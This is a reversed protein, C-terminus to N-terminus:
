ARSPLLAARLPLPVGAAGEQLAPLSPLRAHRHGPQNQRVQVADDALTCMLSGACCCSQVADACSCMLLGACSCMLGACCWCSQVAGARSCMALSLLAVLGILRSGAWVWLLRLQQGGDIGLLALLAHAGSATRGPATTSTAPLPCWSRSAAAAPGARRGAAAAPAAAAALQRAALAAAARTAAAAAAAAAAPRNEARAAAWSSPELSLQSALRQQRNAAAAGEQQRAQRQGLQQPPPPPM